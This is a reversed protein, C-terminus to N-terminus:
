EKKIANQKYLIGTQVVAMSCEQAYKIYQFPLVLVLYYMNETPTILWESTQEKQM